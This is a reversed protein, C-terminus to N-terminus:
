VISRNHKIKVIQKFIRKIKSLQPKSLGTSLNYALEFELFLEQLNNLHKVKKSVRSNSKTYLM